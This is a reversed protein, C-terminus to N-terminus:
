ARPIAGVVAVALVANYAAHLLISPILSGTAVRMWLTAIGLGAIAALAPVNGWAETLHMAVFLLTVIAGAALTGRRRALGTWLVGRFVFEEVPPAVAVALIAWGYVLWGGGAISRGLLGPRAGPPPPFLAMAALCLAALVVGILVAALKARPAAPAWGFPALRHGSEVAPMARLVRRYVVWGGVIVGFIAGLITASRMAEAIVGPARLGRTAAYWIAVLIGAVIGTAFQAAVYVLFALLARRAGFPQPPDTTM